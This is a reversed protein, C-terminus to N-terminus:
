KVSSTFWDCNNLVAEIRRIDDQVPYTRWLGVKSHAEDGRFWSDTESVTAKPLNLFSRIRNEVEDKRLVLDEFRILLLNDPNEWDGYFGARRELAMQAFRESRCDVKPVQSFYKNGEFSSLVEDLRGKISLEIYQDRPDRDVVILKTNPLIALCRTTAGHPKLTQNFVITSADDTGVSGALRGLYSEILQGVRRDREDANDVQSGLKILGGIFDATYANYYGRLERNIGWRMVELKRRPRPGWGLLSRPLCPDKGIEMLESRLMSVRNRWMADSGQFGIIDWISKGFLQFEPLLCEVGQFSRLLDICASSGTNIFGSVIVVNKRGTAGHTMLPRPQTVFNSDLFFRIEKTIHKLRFTASRKIQQIVRM